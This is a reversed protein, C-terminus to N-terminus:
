HSPVLVTPPRTGAEATSSPVSGSVRSQPWRTGPVTVSAARRASRLRLPLLLEEGRSRAAGGCRHHHCCGPKRPGVSSDSPYGAPATCGHLSLRPRSRVGRPQDLHWQLHDAAQSPGLARDGRAGRSSSSVGDKDVAGAPHRLAKAGKSRLCVRPGTSSVQLSLSHICLPLIRLRGV